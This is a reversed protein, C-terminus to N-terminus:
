SAEFQKQPTFLAVHLEKGKEEEEECYFIYYQMCVLMLVPLHGHQFVLLGRMWLEAAMSIFEWNFNTYRLKYDLLACKKSAGDEGKIM